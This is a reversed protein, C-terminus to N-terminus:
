KSLYNWPNVRGLQDNQLEFHLHPGTSRGTSGMYGILSGQYVWTGCSVAMSDLHAYLSQWGNGHDVVVVIGYGGYNWGAYVVVGDAVSYIEHGLRGAVDIGFHNTEPSYDYGSLFHWMAPWGFPPNGAVPGGTVPGCAGPGIIRAIAPNDRPIIPAWSIYDRRGGPVVLGTGEPINPFALDGITEPDLHNGPFEVIVQPSVRFFEAVKLLNDDKHWRYYTGDVPLINLIMGPILTPNDRLVDTNGWLITEPRLGFKEALGFVSDGPQVEYTTVEFRAHSPRITRIEALRGIGREFQSEGPLYLPAETPLIQQEQSPARTPMAPVTPITAKPRLTSGILWVLGAIIAIAVLAMMLQAIDRLIPRAPPTTPQTPSDTLNTSPDVSPPTTEESLQNKENM